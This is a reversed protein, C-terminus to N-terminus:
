DGRRRALFEEETEAGRFGRLEKVLQPPIIGVTSVARSGELLPLFNVPFEGHILQEVIKDTLYGENECLLVEKIRKGM